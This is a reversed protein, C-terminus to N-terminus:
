VLGANIAVHQSATNHPRVRAIVRRAPMAVGAWSVVQSAAESGLGHGWASPALRCLLNLVSDEDFAATKVGCVGITTGDHRLRLVWYGFREWHACWQGVLEDVEARGNIADSPNHAVAEPHRYIALIRDVDSVQPRKLSLRETLMEDADPQTM